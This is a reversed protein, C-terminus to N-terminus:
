AIRYLQIADITYLKKTTQQKRAGDYEFGILEFAMRPLSIQTKHLLEPDAQELRVIFKQKPGYALPVRIRQTENGDSDYRAVQINNFLTGFGATVNRIISHRFYGFM